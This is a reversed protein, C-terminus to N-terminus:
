QEEEIDWRLFHAEGKKNINLFGEELPTMAVPPLGKPGDDEIRGSIRSLANVQKLSLRKYNIFHNCVSAVFAKSFEDCHLTQTNYKKKIANLTDAIEQDTM